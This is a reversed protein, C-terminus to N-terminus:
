VPAEEPWRYADPRRNALAPVSARVRALEGLDLEACAHGEGEEVMALVEGWPGVICSHGFSDYHPPAQGFQNAALVFVANEIARARVLVDWHARGTVATFASPIAFADASRLALIRYLEPFRLDYCITMGLNLDAATAVTVDDGARESESERYAVDGVDVDFMHLKRYTAGIEGEPSVLVSTNYPKGGDSAREAISGALVWVGLERAWTGVASLSLGDLAEAGAHIVDGPGLLNWKEPLVILEAGDAAARRVFREAADLNGAVDASSNMQVVAARM